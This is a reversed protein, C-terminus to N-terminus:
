HSCKLSRLAPQSKEKKCKTIVVVRGMLKWPLLSQSPSKGASIQSPINAQLSKIREPDLGTPASCFSPLLVAEDCPRLQGWPQSPSQLLSPGESVDQAPLLSWANIRQTLWRSSTATGPPPTVEPPHSLLTLAWHPGLATPVLTKMKLAPIESEVKRLFTPWNGLVRTLSCKPTM